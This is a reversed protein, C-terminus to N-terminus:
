LHYATGCWRFRLRSIHEPGWSHVTKSGPQMTKRKKRNVISWTMRQRLVNAQVNYILACYTNVEKYKYRDERFQKWWHFLRSAKKWLALHNCVRAKKRLVLTRKEKKRLALSTLAEKGGQSPDLFNANHIMLTMGWCQTAVHYAMKYEKHFTLNCYKQISKGERKSYQCNIQNYRGIKLHNHLRAQSNQHCM